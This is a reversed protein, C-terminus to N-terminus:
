RIVISGHITGCQVGVRANGSAVNVVTVDQDTDDDVDAPPVQIGVRANGTVVNVHTRKERAMPEEQQPDPHAPRGGCGAARAPRRARDPFRTVRTGPHADHDGV